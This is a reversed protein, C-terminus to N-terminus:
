CNRSSVREEVRHSPYPDNTNADLKERVDEQAERIQNKRSNAIETTEKSQRPPRGLRISQADSRYADDDQNIFTGGNTGLNTM